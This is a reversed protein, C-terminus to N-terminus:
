RRRRLDSGELPCWQASEAMRSHLRPSAYRAKFDNSTLNTTVITPRHKASARHDILKLLLSEVLPADREHEVGVDDVVLLWTECLKEQRELDKGFMGAFVRVADDVRVWKASKTSACAAAAAMSKGVGTKGSLFLWPRERGALWSEVTSYATTAEASRTVILNRAQDSLICIGSNTLSESRARRVKQEETWAEHEKAADCQAKYEPDSEYKAAHAKERAELAEIASSFDFGARVM